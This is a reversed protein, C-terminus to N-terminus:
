NGLLGHGCAMDFIEELGGGGGGGDATASLLASHREYIFHGVIRFCEITELLEKLRLSTVHRTAVHDVIAALEPWQPAAHALYDDLAARAAPEMRGVMTNPSLDFEDLREANWRPPAARHSSNDAMHAALKRPTPFELACILCRHMALQRSDPTAAGGPLIGGRDPLLLPCPRGEVVVAEAALLAQVAPATAPEGLDVIARRRKLLKVGSVSLGHQSFAAGLQTDTCGDHLKKVFLTCGVATCVPEPEPEPECEPEEHAALAAM